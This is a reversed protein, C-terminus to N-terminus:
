KALAERIHAETFGQAYLAATLDGHLILNDLAEAVLPKPHYGIGLGAEKLMPLDNAGDGIAVAQSPRIRAEQCYEYLAKLKANRDLIPERVKGTLVGKEIELVNAVNVAFGAKRAISSSFWTFGGTVLVTLAGSRRMTRVLLEAGPSLQTRELTRFLASEPLGELLKVRARLASAFDIEGNMAKETIAAIEEGLGAEGALEDLTEGVVITADMDCILLKKRRYEVTSVFVDIREDNLLTQLCRMHAHSPRESFGIDAAKEPHLWVPACTQRLGQQELFRGAAKLHGESLPRGGPSSVLTLVYSM